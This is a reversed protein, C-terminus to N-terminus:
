RGGLDISGVGGDDPDDTLDYKGRMGFLDIDFQIVANACPGGTCLEGASVITMAGDLTFGEFWLETFQLDEDFFGQLIQIDFNLNNDSSPAAMVSGDTWQTADVIGSWHFVKSAAGLGQAILRIYPEAEGDGDLDLATQEGWMITLPMDTDGLQTEFDVDTVYDDPIAGDPGLSDLYAKELVKIEISANGTSTNGRNVCTQWTDGAQNITFAVGMDGCACPATYPAVPNEIEPYCYYTIVTEWGEFFPNNCTAGECCDTGGTCADGICTAPYIYAPDQGDLCNSGDDTNSDSDSDTEADSGTDTATDTDDGNGSGCGVTALWGGFCVTGLLAVGYSKM